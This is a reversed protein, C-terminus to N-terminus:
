SWTLAMSPMQKKEINRVSQRAYKQENTDLASDGSGCILSAAEGSLSRMLEADGMIGTWLPGSVNSRDSPSASLPLMVHM